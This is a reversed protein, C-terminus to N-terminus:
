IQYLRPTRKCSPWFPASKRLLGGVSKRLKDKLIDDTSPSRERFQDRVIAGWVYGGKFDEFPLIPNPVNMYGAVVRSGVSDDFALVQLDAFCEHFHTPILRRLPSGVDM